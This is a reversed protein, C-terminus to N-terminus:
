MFLLKLESKLSKTKVCSALRQCKECAADVAEFYYRCSSEPRKPYQLMTVPLYNSDNLLIVAGQFRTTVMKFQHSAVGWFVRTELLM